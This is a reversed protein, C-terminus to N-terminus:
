LLPFETVKEYGLATIPGVPAFTKAITAQAGADAAQAAGFEALASESAFEEIALWRESATDGQPCEFLRLALAGFRVVQGRREAALTLAEDRRSPDVELTWVLLVTMVGWSREARRCALCCTQWPTRLAGHQGTM